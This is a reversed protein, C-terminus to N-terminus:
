IYGIIYILNIIDTCITNAYGLNGYICMQEVFGQYFSAIEALISSLYIFYKMFAEEQFDKTMLFVLLMCAYLSVRYLSRIPNVSILAAVAAYLM